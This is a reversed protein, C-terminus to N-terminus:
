SSVTNLVAQATNESNLMQDIIVGPTSFDETITGVGRCVITGATVTADFKLQGSNIDLSISETGTKNIIKLGGNYNRVHLGQGSGGCDVVPTGTGAIGSHCNIIHAELAGGLIITGELACVLIQGNIYNLDKLACNRLTSGGDLVGQVTAREFVCNLVNAGDNIIISTRNIESGLITMGVPDDGTDLTIDGIIRLRERGRFNAVILADPVNTCPQRYTGAPYITGAKANGTINDKDIVVEQYEGAEIAESTVLGASNGPNVSVQNKNTRDLINNNSGKLSVAWAGDEFTVTYDDTISIVRALEIGGVSVPPNHDHTKTFAMGDVDDELDKLDLRFQNTNLNRIETPTLQVLTTYAKPVSIIGNPWDVSIAM